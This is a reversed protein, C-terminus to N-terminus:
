YRIAVAMTARWFSLREAGIAVATDTRGGVSRFYRVDWNLGIRKTLFGTVGGGVDVAALDTRIPLADLRDTSRARMLGAGGVVYPRLTYETWRRPLAVVLNGTVTTVGSTLVLPDQSGFPRNDANFFGPTHGVDVEVGLIEGIFEGSVGVAVKREGAALDLDGLLTTGGGFTVGIWPKVQWEAAGARAPAVLLLALALVRVRM